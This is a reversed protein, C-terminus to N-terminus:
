KNRERVYFSVENKLDDNEKTLQEIRKKQAEITGKLTRISLEAIKIDGCTVCKNEKIKDDIM